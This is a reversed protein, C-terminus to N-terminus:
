QRPHDVGELADAVEILNRALRRATTPSMRVPRMTARKEPESHDYLHLGIVSIEPFILEAMEFSDIFDTDTM